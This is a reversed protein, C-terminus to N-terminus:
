VAAGVLTGAGATLAMALAGWLTVRSAAVLVPAGGAQASLSGLLALFLLSSISVAWM